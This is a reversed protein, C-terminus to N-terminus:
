AFRKAEVLEKARAVHRAGVKKLMVTIVSSTWLLGNPMPHQLRQTSIVSGSDNMGTHRTNAFTTSFLNSHGTMPHPNMSPWAM